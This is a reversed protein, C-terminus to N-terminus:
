ELNVVPANIADDVSTFLEFEEFSQESIKNFLTVLMSNPFQAIYKNFDTASENYRRREVAIRNETGALEDMLATVSKDAKLDPYQEMVVLLRSLASELENSAEIKEASGAPATGYKTRADAVESIVKEEHAMYGRVSNVLNPILDYRRQLQVEVQAQQQVVDKSMLVMTNYKGVLWVSVTAILVVTALMVVAVSILSKKM